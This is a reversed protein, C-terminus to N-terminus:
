ALSDEIAKGLRVSAAILRQWILPLNREYYAEDIIAVGNETKFDYVTSKILDHSEDAWSVANMDSLYKNVQDPNEKIMKEIFEIATNIDPNWKAIISTDWVSHLNAMKGFFDAKITNGGLDSEWGIHLPQHIDGVYHTLFELACPEIEDGYKCKVVKNAESDLIKTYNQVSKVVCFGPCYEWKFHTAGTPLDAYHCPGSWDGANTHVYIDPLTSVQALTKDGLFQKVISSVKSSLRNSAIQAVMQHGQQGWQLASNVLILILSIIFIKVM